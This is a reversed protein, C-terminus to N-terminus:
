KLVVYFGSSLKDCINISFFECNKPENDKILWLAKKFYPLNSLIYNYKTNQKVTNVSSGFKASGIGFTVTDRPLSADRGHTTLLRPVYLTLHWTCLIIIIVIIIIYLPVYKM